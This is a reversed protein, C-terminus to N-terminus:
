VAQICQYFVSPRRNGNGEMFVNTSTVTGTSSNARSAVNARTGSTRASTSGVTPERGMPVDPEAHLLQFHQLQRCFVAVVVDRPSDREALQRVSDVDRM